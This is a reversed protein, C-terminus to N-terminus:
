PTAEPAPQGRQAATLDGSVARQGPTAYLLGMIILVLLTRDLLDINPTNGAAISHGFEIAGTVLLILASGAPLLGLGPYVVDEAAAFARAIWGRAELRSSKAPRM